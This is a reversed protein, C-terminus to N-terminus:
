QQTLSTRRCSNLRHHRFRTMRRRRCKEEERKKKPLHKVRNQRMRIQTQDEPPPFDEFEQNLLRPSPEATSMAQEDGVSMLEDDRPPTASDEDVQQFPDFPRCKVVVSARRSSTSSMSSRKSSHDFASRAECASSRRRLPGESASTKRSGVQQRDSDSIRRIETEEVDSVDSPYDPIRPPNLHDNLSDDEQHDDVITAFPDFPEASPPPPPPIAATKEDNQELYASDTVEEVEFRNVVEASESCVEGTAEVASEVVQEQEQEEQQAVASTEDEFMEEQEEPQQPEEAAQLSDPELAQPVPEPTASGPKMTEDATEIAFCFDATLAAIASAGGSTEPLDDVPSDEFPNTSGRRKPTTAGSVSTNDPNFDDQFDDNLFPNSLISALSTTSGYRSVHIKKNQQLYLDTVDADFDPDPLPDGPPLAPEPTVSRRGTNNVLPARTEM